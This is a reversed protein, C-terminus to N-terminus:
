RNVDCFAGKDGFGCDIRQLLVLLLVDPTKHAVPFTLKIKRSKGKNMAPSKRMGTFQNSLHEELYVKIRPLRRSDTATGMALALDRSTKGRSFRTATEGQPLRLPSATWEPRYRQCDM